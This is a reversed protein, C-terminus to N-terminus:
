KQITNINLINHKLELFFEYLSNTTSVFTVLYDLYVLQIVWSLVYESVTTTYAIVSLYATIPLITLFLISLTFSLLNFDFQPM